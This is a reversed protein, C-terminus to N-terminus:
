RLCHLHFVHNCQLKKNRSSASMDERCIICIHDARELDEPTADVFREDMNATIRRCTGPVAYSAAFIPWCVIGTHDAYQLDVLAANLVSQCYGAVGVIMGFYPTYACARPMSSTCVRSCIQCPPIATPHCPSSSPLISLCATKMQPVSACSLLCIGTHFVYLCCCSQQKQQCHNGVFAWPMLTRLVYCSCRAATSGAVMACM